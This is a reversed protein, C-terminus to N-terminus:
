PRIHPKGRKCWGVFAMLILGAFFLPLAAPLPIVSASDTSISTDRPVADANRPGTTILSGLWKRSFYHPDGDSDPKFLSWSSNEDGQFISSSENAPPRLIFEEVTLMLVNDFQFATGLKNGFPRHDIRLGGSAPDFQVSVGDLNNVPAAEVGETAFWLVAAALVTAILSKM